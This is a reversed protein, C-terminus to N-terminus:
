QEIEPKESLLEVGVVEACTWGDGDEPYMKWHNDSNGRKWESPKLGHENYVWEEIYEKAMDEETFYRVHVGTNWLARYIRRAHEDAM